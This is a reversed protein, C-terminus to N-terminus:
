AVEMPIVQGFPAQRTDTSVWLVPYPPVREPFTGWLDTLFVMTQPQIGWEALWSFCPRFDTGGGIPTLKVTQGAQFTQYKQVETDFYLVQVLRPQQGALISRIEAEFLGLQRGSISGSCDVAICIEGVGESVV